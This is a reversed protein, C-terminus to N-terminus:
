TVYDQLKPYDFNTNCRDLASWIKEKLGHDTTRKGKWVNCLARIDIGARAKNLLADYSFPIISPDVAQRVGNIMLGSLDIGNNACSRM